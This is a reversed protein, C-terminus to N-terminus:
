IWDQDRSRAGPHYIRLTPMDEPSNIPVPPRIVNRPIYATEFEIVEEEEEEEELSRHDDDKRTPLPSSPRLSPTEPEANMDGEKWYM